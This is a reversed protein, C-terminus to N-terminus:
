PREELWANLEVTRLRERQWVELTAPSAIGSSNFVVKQPSEFSLQRMSLEGADGADSKWGLNTGEAVLEISENRAFARFAVTDLTRQLVLWEEQARAKDVQTVTLSGVLAMLLGAITLVVLLEVLTFGRAPRM